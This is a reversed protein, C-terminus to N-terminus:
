FFWRHHYHAETDLPTISATALSYTAIPGKESFATLLISTPIHLSFRRLFIGVTSPHYEPSYRYDNVHGPDYRM